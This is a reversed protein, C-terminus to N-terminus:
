LKDALIPALQKKNVVVFAQSGNIKPAMPYKRVLNGETDLWLFNGGSSVIYGNLAPFYRIEDAAGSGSEKVDYFVGLYEGNKRSYEPIISSDTNTVFLNENHGITIGTSRKMAADPESVLWDELADHEKLKFRAIRGGFVEVMYVTDGSVDLGVANGISIQRTLPKPNGSELNFQFIGGTADGSVLLDGKETIRLKAAGYPGVRGSKEEIKFGGEELPTMKIVNMGGYRLGVYIEGSQLVAIGRPGTQEEFKHIIKVEGTGLNLSAIVESAMSAFLVYCDEERSDGADLKGNKPTQGAIVVRFGRNVYPTNPLSYGRYSSRLVSKETVNWSSGRLVRNEKKIPDVWDQCWESINGSMDYLGLKSAAYSGVSATREYGDNYGALPKRFNDFPNDKCEEGYFNGAGKPPPWNIGWPYFNALQERKVIPTFEPDEMEGIGIACSWEHDTPLRYFQKTGLLGSKREKDTLWACFAVADDWTVLVAPHDDQQEFNAKQWPREGDQDLFAQYDKVRSEWVSFLIKQGDGPGETIPVPVFRMGLSNEFPEEKSAIGTVVSSNLVLNPKRDLVVRFGTSGWKSSAPYSLRAASRLNVETPWIWSAGRFIRADKIKPDMWDQVWEWVNGGMDYLGFKNLKFSGVPATRDFGDNYGKIQIARQATSPNNVAEEGYYNGDGEKPPFYDGWPYVGGLVGNKSFPSAEADERDGIGVACSWEHDSPLRYTEDNGIKGKRREEATLWECFAVADDWSLMVSPHDENQSYTPKEWARKSDRELFAEYDKVRTEWISFLVTKGDYVGGTIPVPVFRMGFSNEYPRDKRAAAPDAVTYNPDAKQTLKEKDVGKELVIRFGIVDYNAHSPKGFRFSSRLTAELSFVFAAGRYLRETKALPDYWDQCWERVNGGLDYLGFTNAKFSGVPSAKAYGDNYGQLISVGQLNPLTGKTEEGRYNEVIEKPPYEGGWPYHVLGRSAKFAPPDEAKEEQGIGVACSWEHDLPLSYTDNSGIRGEEREEDTLWKCFAVADDWTVFSAPHDSIKSDPSIPWSREKDHSLFAEYDKVRTEWISFLVRKGSTPGGTIPVPVFRMGLSNEFPKDRTASAIDASVPLAAGGSIRSRTQSLKQAGSNKEGPNEPLFFAALGGIVLLAVVGIGLYLAKKSTGREAKRAEDGERKEAVIRSIPQSMVQDIDARLSAASPYRFEPDSETAKEVIADLRPDLEPFMESPMKFSERPLKGTLMRYLMVGVAYLDARQDVPNGMGLAEPAVFDPTGVAANTTTLALTAEDMGKGFTKALGFDAIKVRGDQRLLINAPKIDRHVIGQSHAYGLADLVHATISLADKQPLKGGHHQLYQHIDMGEVFEMVLYLLGGEAEGFDHVSVIAPHDLNAMSEAEQKFRAVFNLEDDEGGAAECLVKIAVERKLNVQQGKYVAGMGGVGLIDSIEYQPLIRHLEELSPPEWGAPSSSSSSPPPM